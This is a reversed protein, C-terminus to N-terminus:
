AQRSWKRSTPRGAGGGTMRMGGSRFGSAGSGVGRMEGRPGDVREERLEEAGRDGARRGHAEERAVIPRGDIDLLRQDPGGDPLARPHVSVGRAPIM